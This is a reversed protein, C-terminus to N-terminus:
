TLGFSEGFGAEKIHNLIRSMSKTGINRLRRIYEYFTGCKSEEFKNKLDAYTGIGASEFARYIRATSYIGKPLNIRKQLRVTSDYPEVSDIALFSHVLKSLCILVEPKEVSVDSTICINKYRPPNGEVKSVKISFNRYPAIAEAIKVYDSHNLAAITVKVSRGVILELGKM